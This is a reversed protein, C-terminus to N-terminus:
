HTDRIAMSAVMVCGCVMSSASITVEGDLPHIAGNGVRNGRAGWGRGESWRGWGRERGVGEGVGGVGFVVGGGEFVGCFVVCM